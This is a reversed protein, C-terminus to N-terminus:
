ATAVLSRLYPGVLSKFEAADGKSGFQVTKSGITYSSVGRNKRKAMNGGVLLFIAMRLSEPFDVGSLFGSTPSTLTLGTAASLVIASDERQATKDVIYVTGELAFARFDALTNIAAALNTATTANDTEADWDNGETVVQASDGNPTLTVTMAGTVASFDTFEVTSYGGAHWGAGYDIDVERFGGSLTSTLRLIYNDIDFPDDQTYLTGDQDIDGMDFVNIDKLYYKTSGGNHVEDTVKHAALDSVSLVGNLQDTAIKNLMAILTDKSAGSIGLYTKIEDTTVYLNM